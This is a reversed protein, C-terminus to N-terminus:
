PAQGYKERHLARAQKQWGDRRIRGGLKLEENIARVQPARWKVVQRYTYIGIKHLRRSIAEGVGQLRTLDDVEAPAKRYIPGLRPDEVLSGKGRSPLKVVPEPAAELRVPKTSRKAPRKTATLKARLERAAAASRKGKERATELEARLATEIEMRARGAAEQAEERAEAVAENIAEERGTRLAEIEEALLRQTEDSIASATELAKLKDALPKHEELSRMQARGLREETSLLRGQLKDLAGLKQEAEVLESRLGHMERRLVLAADEVQQRERQQDELEHRLRDKEAKLQRVVVEAKSDGSLIAMHQHLEKKEERLRHLEEAWKTEAVKRRELEQHEHEHEQRVLDFDMRAQEMEIRAVAIQEELGARTGSLEELEGSTRTVCEELEGVRSELGGKEEKVEKLAREGESREERLSALGSELKEKEDLVEQLRSETKDADAQATVLARELDLREGVVGALERAGEEKEQRIVALQKE